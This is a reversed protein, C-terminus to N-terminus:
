MLDNMRGIRPADEELEDTPDLAFENEIPEKREVTDQSLEPQKRRDATGEVLGNHAPLAIPCESQGSNARM